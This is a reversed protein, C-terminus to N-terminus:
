SSVEQTTYNPYLPRMLVTPGHEPCYTRQERAAVYVRWGLRFAPDAHIIEDGYGSVNFPESEWWQGCKNCRLVARAVVERTMVGSM